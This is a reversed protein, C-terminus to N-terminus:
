KFNKLYEYLNYIEINKIFERPRKIGNQNSYLITYNLHVYSEQILNEM